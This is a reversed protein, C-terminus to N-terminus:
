TALTQAEAESSDAGGLGPAWVPSPFARSLAPALSQGRSPVCIGILLGADIEQGLQLVM